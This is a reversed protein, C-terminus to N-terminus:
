CGVPADLKLVKRTPVDSIARPGLSNLCSTRPRSLSHCSLGGGTGPAPSSTDMSRCPDAPRASGRHGSVAASEATDCHWEDFRVPRHLRSWIIWASRWPRSSASPSKPQSRLAMDLLPDDSSYALLVSHLVPDDEITRPSRMCHSRPQRRCWSGGPPSPHPEAIRIHLLPLLRSIWTRARTPPKRRCAEGGRDPGAHCSKPTPDRHRRTRRFGARDPQRRVVGDRDAAAEPLQLLSVHRAATSWGDRAREVSSTLAALRIARSLSSAHLSHPPKDHVTVAAARMPLAIM